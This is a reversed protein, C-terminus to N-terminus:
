AAADDWPNVARGLEPVRIVRVGRGHADLYDQEDPGVQGTILVHHVGPVRQLAESLGTVQVAPGGVNMRAIVRAM